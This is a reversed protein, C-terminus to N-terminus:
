SLWLSMGFSVNQLLGETATRLIKAAINEEFLGALQNRLTVTKTFKLQTSASEMRVHEPIPADLEGSSPQAHPAMTRACCDPIVQKNENVLLM